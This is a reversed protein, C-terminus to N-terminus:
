SGILGVPEFFQWGDPILTLQDLLVTRLKGGTTTLGARANGKYPKATVIPQVIVIARQRHDTGMTIYSVIVHTGAKLIPLTKDAADRVDAMLTAATGPRVHDPRMSEENGVRDATPLQWRGHRDLRRTKQNEPRPGVAQYGGQRHEEAHPCDSFHNVAWRVGQADTRITAVALPIHKRNATTTWIIPAHCSSCRSLPALDPVRYEGKRPENTPKM